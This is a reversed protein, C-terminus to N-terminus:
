HSRVENYLPEIPYYVRNIYGKMSFSKGLSYSIMTLPVGLYLRMHRFLAFYGFVACNLGVLNSTGVM